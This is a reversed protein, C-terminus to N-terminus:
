EWRMNLIFALYNVTGHCIISPYISGTMEYLIGLILGIFFRSGILYIIDGFVFGPHTVSFFLAQLVLGSVIGLKMRLYGYIFGRDLIEEGVPGLVITAFGDISIPLLILDIYHDSVKMNALASGHRLPIMWILFYYTIAAVIGTVILSSVRLYGMRLGLVEKTLGYRKKIWFLPFFITLLAGVYMALRFTTKSDGFLFLFLFYFLVSSFLICSAVVLIDKIRWTAVPIKEIKTSHKVTTM